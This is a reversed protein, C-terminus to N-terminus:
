RRTMINTTLAATYHEGKKGRTEPSTGLIQSSSIEKFFFFSFFFGFTPTESSVPAWAGENEAPIQRDLM